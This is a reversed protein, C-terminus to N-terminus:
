GHVAAGAAGSLLSSLRSTGPAPRGCLQDESDRPIPLSVSRFRGLLLLALEYGVPPRGWNEWDLLVLPARTLNAWHLDAHGTTTERIRVADIGLFDPDGHAPGYSIGSVADLVSLATLQNEEEPTFPAAM